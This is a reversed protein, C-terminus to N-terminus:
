ESIQKNGQEVEWFTSTLVTLVCWKSIDGVKKKLPLNFIIIKSSVLSFSAYILLYIINFCVTKFINFIIPYSLTLLHGKVAQLLIYIKLQMINYMELQYFVIKSHIWPM